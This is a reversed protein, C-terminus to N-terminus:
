GQIETPIVAGSVDFSARRMAEEAAGAHKAPVQVSDHIPLCAIGQRQLDIVVARIIASDVSQLRLGEGSCMAARIASHKEVMDTVLQRGKSYAESTKDWVGLDWIADSRAISAAASKESSANIATNFTVKGL